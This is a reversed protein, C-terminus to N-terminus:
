WHTFGSNRHGNGNPSGYIWTGEPSKYVVGPEGLSMGLYFQWQLGAAFVASRWPPSPFWWFIPFDRYIQFMMSKRPLTWSKTSGLWTFGYCEMDVEYDYHFFSENESKSGKYTV